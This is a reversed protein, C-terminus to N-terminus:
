AFSNAPLISPTSSMRTMPISRDFASFCFGGGRLGRFFVDLAGEALGLFLFVYAPSRPVSEVESGFPNYIAIPQTAIVSSEPIKRKPTATDSNPSPSLTHFPARAAARIDANRTNWHLTLM